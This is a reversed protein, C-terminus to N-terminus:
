PWPTRACRTRVLLVDHLEPGMRKVHRHPALEPVMETAVDPLPQLVLGARAVRADRRRRVSPTEPRTAEYSAIGFDSLLDYAPKTSGPTKRSRLFM